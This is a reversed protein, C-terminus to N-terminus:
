GENGKLFSYAELLCCGLVLYLLVLCFGEYPPKVLGGLPLFPTRLAPLLTLSVGM